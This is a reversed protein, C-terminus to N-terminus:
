CIDIGIKSDGVADTLVKVVQEHINGAQKATGTHTHNHTGMAQMNFSVNGGGVGGKPSEPHTLNGTGPVKSSHMPSIPHVKGPTHLSGPHPQISKGGTNFQGPLDNAKPSAMGRGTPPGEFEPIVPPPMFSTSGPSSFSMGPVSSAMGNNAMQGGSAAAGAAMNASKSLLGNTASFDPTFSPPTLKPATSSPSSFSPPMYSIIGTDTPQVNSTSTRLPKDKKDYWRNAGPASFPKVAPKGTELEYKMNQLSEMKAKLENIGQLALKSQNSLLFPADRSIEPVGKPLSNESASLQTQLDALEDDITSITRDTLGHLDNKALWTAYYKGNKDRNYGKFGKDLQPLPASVSDKKLLSDALPYKRHILGTDKELEYEIGEEETNFKRHGADVGFFNNRPEFKNLTSKSGYGTEQAALALILRAGFVSYGQKRAYHYIDFGENKIFREHIDVPVSKEPAIKQPVPIKNELNSTDISHIDSPKEPVNIVNLNRKRNRTSDRRINEGGKQHEKNNM